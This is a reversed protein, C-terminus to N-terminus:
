VIEFSTPECEANHAGSSGVAHLVWVLSRSTYAVVALQGDRSCIELSKAEPLLQATKCRGRRSTHRKICRAFLTGDVYKAGCCSHQKRPGAALLCHCVQHTACACHSRRLLGPSRAAQIRCGRTLIQSKTATSPTPGAAAATGTVRICNQTNRQAQAAASSQEPESVATPRVYPARTLSSGKNLPSSPQLRSM